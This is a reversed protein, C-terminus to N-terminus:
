KCESLLEVALAVQKPNLKGATKAIAESGLQLFETVKLFPKTEEVTYFQAVKNAQKM